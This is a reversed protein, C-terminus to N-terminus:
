FKVKVGLTLPLSSATDFGETQLTGDTLAATDEEDTFALYWQGGAYLNVSEHVDYGIKLGGNGTFYTETIGEVTAGGSTTFADGDFTTAGAGLNVTVDWPSAGPETLEVAVGANYHWLNLDPLELEGVTTAVDAGSYIDLDGDVRISVRPHIRYAVGLGFTPGVDVADALDGAPVAIGGRADVSWKGTDGAMQAQAPTDLPILAVAVALATVTGFTRMTNQM